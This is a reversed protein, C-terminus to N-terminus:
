KEVYREDKFFLLCLIDKVKMYVLINFTEVNEDYM